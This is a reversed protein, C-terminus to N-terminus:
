RVTFITRKKNYDLSFDYKLTIMINSYGRKKFSTCILESITETWKTYAEELKIYGILRCETTVYEFHYRCIPYELLNNISEIVEVITATDLMKGNINILTRQRGFINDIFPDCFGCRCMKMGTLTIEDGQNYRIFPMARNHLNTIVAIGKGSQNISDNDMCEVMVNESIVHMNGYPCEIAIGNMEESGYMNKISIGTYYLMNRRLSDPLIEGVTEIYKVKPFCIKHNIYYGLIRELISPQIYIWDITTNELLSVLEKMSEDSNLSAKNISLSNKNFYYKLKNSSVENNYLNYNFNLVNSTPLINYYSYRRRWLYSMSKYYDKTDWYVKLPQGSSGSTIFTILNRMNLGLYDNSLMKRKAKQVTSRDIIPMEKLSLNILGRNIYFENNESVYKLMAELKTM